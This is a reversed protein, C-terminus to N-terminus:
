LSGRERDGPAQRIDHHLLRIHERLILRERPPLNYLCMSLEVLMLDLALVSDMRTCSHNEGRGIRDNWESRKRGRKPRIRHM